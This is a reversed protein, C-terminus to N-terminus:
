VKFPLGLSSLFLYTELRTKATTVFHIDLGSKLNFKSLSAQLEPFLSLTNVGLSCRGAQILTQTSLGQFDRIQPLNLLLFKDLFSYMNINRLTVKCSIPKNKKLKFIANAKKTYLLVAKQGSILELILLTPLINQLNRQSIPMTLHLIIRSLKPFMLVNIYHLKYLLKIQILYNYYNIIRNM